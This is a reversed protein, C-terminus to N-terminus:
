GSGVSLSGKVYYQSAAELVLSAATTTDATDVVWAVITNAVWTAATNTAWAASAEEFNTTRAQHSHAAAAVWSPAQQGEWALKSGWSPGVTATGAVAATDAEPHICQALNGAAATATGEGIDVVTNTAVELSVGELGVEEVTGPRGVM